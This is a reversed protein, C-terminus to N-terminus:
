HRRGLVILPMVEERRVAPLEVVSRQNVVFKMVQCQSVLLAELPQEPLKVDIAIPVNIELVEDSRELGLSDLRCMIIDLNTGRFQITKWGNSPANSFIGGIKGTHVTDLRNYM